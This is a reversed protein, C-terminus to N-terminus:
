RFNAPILMIAGDCTAFNNAPRLYDAPFRFLRGFAATVVPDQEFVFIPHFWTGNRRFARQSWMGNFPRRHHVDCVHGDEFQIVGDDDERPPGM